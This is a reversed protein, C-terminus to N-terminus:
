PSVLFFLLCCFDGSTISILKLDWGSPVVDWGIVTKTFVDVKSISKKSISPGFFVSFHAVLFFPVRVVPQNIVPDKYWSLPLNTIQPGTTQPEFRPAGLTVIGKMLPDLSDLGGIWVMLKGIASQVPKQNWGIGVLVRFLWPGKKWLEFSSNWSISCTQTAPDTSFTHEFQIGNDWKSPSLELLDNFFMNKSLYVYVDLWWFCVFRKSFM